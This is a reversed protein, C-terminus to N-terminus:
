FPLSDDDTDDGKPMQPRSAPHDAAFKASEEAYAAKKKDWWAGREYDASLDPIAERMAKPLPSIAAINAFTRGQKSQKHEVTVLAAKGALKDLPAGAMAEDDTYSKGRWAALFPRLNSKDHMSVTFETQVTLLDGTQSDREGSAFVLAVRPVLRPPKKGQLDEQVKTGLNIVDVCVMLHSGEPHREFDASANMTATVADPKYPM